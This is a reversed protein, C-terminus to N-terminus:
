PKPDYGDGGRYSDDLGPLEGLEERLFQAQSDMARLNDDLIGQRVRGAARTLTTLSDVVVRVASADRYQPADLYTDVVEPYYVKVVNWITQRHEPTPELHEWESLVFRVTDELARAQAMVQRPPRAGGLRRSTEQLSRELVVPTPEAPAVPLEKPTRAPTLAAGAGYAALAAVPWYVGIGVVLHLVVVLIALVLGVQNKPSAFYRAFANGSVNNSAM